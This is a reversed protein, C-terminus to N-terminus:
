TTDRNFGIQMPIFLCNYMLVVLRLPNWYKAVVHWMHHADETASRAGGGTIGKVTLGLCVRVLQRDRMRLMTAAAEAGEQTQLTKTSKQKSVLLSTAPSDQRSRFGKAGPILIPSDPELPSATSSGRPGTTDVRVIGTICRDAAQGRTPSMPTRAAGTPSMMGGM